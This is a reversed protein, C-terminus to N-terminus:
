KGIGGGVSIMNPYRRAPIVEVKITKVSESEMVRIRSKLWENEYQLLKNQEKLLVNAKANETLLITPNEELQKIRDQLINKESTLNNISKVYNVSDVESKKQKRIMLEILARSPNNAGLENLENRALLEELSMSQAEQDEQDEQADQKLKQQEKWKEVNKYYQSNDGPNQDPAPKSVNVNPGLKARRSMGKVGPQVSWPCDRRQAIAFMTMLSLTLTIITKIKM